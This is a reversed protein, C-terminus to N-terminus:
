SVPSNCPAHQPRYTTGKLQTLTRTIIKESVDAPLVEWTADSRAKEIISLFEPPVQERLELALAVLARQADRLDDILAVIRDAGQEDLIEEADAPLVVMHGRTLDDAVLLTQYGRKAEYYQYARGDWDSTESEMHGDHRNRYGVVIGRAPIALAHRQWSRVRGESERLLCATVWVPTGLALRKM